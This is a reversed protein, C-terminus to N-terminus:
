NEPEPENSTAGRVPKKDNTTQVEHACHHEPAFGFDEAKRENTEKPEKPTRM